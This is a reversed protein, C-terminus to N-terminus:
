PAETAQATHVSVLSLNDVLLASPKGDDRVAAIGIGLTYIGSAPLLFSVTTYGTAGLVAPTSLTFTEFPETSPEGATLTVFAFDSPDPDLPTAAADPDIVAYTVFNVELVLVSGAAATFTQKMAAGKLVPGSSLHDLSGEPLALFAELETASVPESEAAATEGAEAIATTSLLAQFDGEPPESGFIAAVVSTNGIAKWHALDGGEFGAGDFEWCLMQAEPVAPSNVAEQDAQRENNFADHQLPDIPQCRGSTTSAGGPQQAARSYSRYILEPSYDSENNATDYATVAFHYTRWADLSALAYATRDGVDIAFAYQHQSYGIYLKYGALRPHRVPDWAISVQAGSEIVKLHEAATLQSMAPAAAESSLWVFLVSSLSFIMFYHSLRCPFLRQLPYM